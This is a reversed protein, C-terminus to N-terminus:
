NNELLDEDIKMSFNSIRGAERNRNDLSSPLLSNEKKKAHTNIGKTAYAEAIMSLKYVPAGVLQM